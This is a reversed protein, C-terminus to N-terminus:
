IEYKSPPEPIKHPRKESGDPNRYATPWGRERMSFTDRYGFSKRRANRNIAMTRSNYFTSPYESGQSFTYKRGGKVFWNVGMRMAEAKTKPPWNKLSFQRGEESKPDRIAKTLFEDYNPVGELSDLNELLLDVILAATSM